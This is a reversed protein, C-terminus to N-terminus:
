QPARAFYRKIVTLNDSPIFERRPATVDASAGAGARAAGASAAQGVEGAALEPIVEIRIRRGGSDPEGALVMEEGARGEIEAFAADEELTESGLGAADSEGRGSQLAAGVPMQGVSVWEQPEMPRIGEEEGGAAPGDSPAGDEREADPGAIIEEERRNAFREQLDPSAEYMGPPEGEARRADRMAAAAEAAAQEAEYAALREDLGALRDDSTGLWDPMDEGYAAAAHDLLDELERRLSDPLEGPQEDAEALRDQLASAVATLYPDDREEADRAIIEAAARAADQVTTAAEDEPVAMDTAALESADDRVGSQLGREVALAGTLAIALALAILLPRTAFPALVAPDLRGVDRSVSALLAREVAGRDQSGADNVEWATGYREEWGARRDIDFAVAGDSPRRLVTWALGGLLVTLGALAAALALSVSQGSVLGLVELGRTALTAAAAAAVAFFLVTLFTRRRRRRIVARLPAAIDGEPLNRESM